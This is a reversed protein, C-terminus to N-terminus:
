IIQVTHSIMMIIIMICNNPGSNCTGLVSRLFYRLVTSGPSEHHGQQNTVLGFQWLLCVFWVHSNFRPFLCCNPQTCVLNSSEKAHVVLPCQTPHFTSNQFWGFPFSWKWLIGRWKLHFFIDSISVRYTKGQACCFIWCDWRSWWSAM